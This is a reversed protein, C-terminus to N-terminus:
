IAAHAIFKLTFDQNDIRLYGADPLYEVDISSFALVGYRAQWSDDKVIVVGEVKEIENKAHETVFIGNFPINKLYSKLADQVPTASTGDIRAGTNDLVLPDYFIRLTAKLDDAQDSTCRLKIGADKVQEMYQTFSTLQGATLAALDSGVTRAVKIRIGRDTQEVVAAHSIIQIAAIQADTMGTNDYEDSESILPMGNQFLKAKEAYWRSSHPKLKKITEDVEGRFLDFLSELTFICFAVAFFLMKWIAVKSANNLMDLMPQSGANTAQLVAEAKMDDFIQNITRAM